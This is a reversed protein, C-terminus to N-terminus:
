GNLVEVEIGAQLATGNGTAGAQELTLSYTVSEENAREETATLEFAENSGAAAGVTIATAEGVLAGATTTGRRIRPTVTTTATGTTLQAWARILIRATQLPMKAPPSTIIVTEATTVLTVNTGSVDVVKEVVDPM